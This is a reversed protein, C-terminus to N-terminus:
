RREAKFITSQSYPDPGDELWQRISAPDRAGALTLPARIPHNGHFDHCGLCSDWRKQAILSVHPVDLPDVKLTLDQHCASCFEIETLSTRHGTHETHCTLCSTADIQARAKQFRPERFRYIPHRENPRDHCTLCEGSAVPRNGLDPQAARIGVLYRVGAQLQQRLTGKAAQHCDACVLSAHGPM